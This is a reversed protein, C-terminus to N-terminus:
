RRAFPENVKRKTRLRNGVSPMQARRKGILKRAIQTQCGTADITVMTGKLWLADLLEPIAAIERDKGAVCPQGLVLGLGSDYAPM